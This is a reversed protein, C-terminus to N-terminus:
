SYRSGNSATCLAASCGRGTLEHGGPALSVRGGGGVARAGGDRRGLTSHAEPSEAGCGVEGAASGTFGPRSRLATGEPDWCGRALGPPPSLRAHGANDRHRGSCIPFAAEVRCVACTPPACLGSGPWASWVPHGPEALDSRGPPWDRPTPAPGMM